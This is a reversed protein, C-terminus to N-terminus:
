VQRSTRAGGHSAGRLQERELAEMLEKAQALDAEWAEPASTGQGGAGEPGLRVRHRKERSGGKSGLAIGSAVVLGLEADVDQGLDAVRARVEDLRVRQVEDPTVGTSGGATRRMSEPLGGLRDMSEKDEAEFAAARRQLEELREGISRAGRMRLEEAEAAELEATPTGM